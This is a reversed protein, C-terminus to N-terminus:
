VSLEVQMLQKEQCKFDVCCVMQYIGTNCVLIFPLAAFVVDQMYLFM